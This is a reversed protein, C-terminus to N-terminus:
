FLVCIPFGLDDVGEFVEDVGFTDDPLDFQQTFSVRFASNKLCSLMMLSSSM